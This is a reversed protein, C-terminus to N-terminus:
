HTSGTESTYFHRSLIPFLLQLRVLVNVNWETFLTVM